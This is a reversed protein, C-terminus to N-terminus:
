YNAYFSASREPGLRRRDYLKTTDPREHGVARQVDELSAGNELATTIFTARMSHASFGRGLGIRAAYKKLIKDVTDPHMHRLPSPNRWSAAVPLFLPANPDSAHGAAELYRLIRQATEPHVSVELDRRGKRIFHLSWFGRNRHFDRVCLSVIESRRAGVQFGVSLIARDRLGLLSVDDPADLIRRAERPSFSATRGQRPRGRPREIDRVPNCEVVSFRVLHAFLSSLASLKRRVTSPKAGREELMRMWLLVARHGIRRLEATSSIGLSSVFDKIDNRYARRTEPSHRSELWLEEEPICSLVDLTSPVSSGGRREVPKSRYAM